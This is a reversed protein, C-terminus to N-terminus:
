RQNVLWGDQLRELSYRYSHIKFILGPNLWTYTVDLIPRYEPTYGVIMMETNKHGNNWTVRMGPGNGSTLIQQEQFAEARQRVTLPLVKFPLALFYDLPTLDGEEPPRLTAPLFADDFKEGQAPAHCSILALCAAVLHTKM